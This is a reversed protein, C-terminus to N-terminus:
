RMAFVLWPPVIRQQSPPIPSHVDLKTQECGVGLLGRTCNVAGGGGGGIVQAYTYGTSSNYLETVEAESLERKWLGLQDIQSGNSMYGPSVDNKRGIFTGESSDGVAGSTASTEPTGGNISIWAENATADHAGALFYWTATSPAGFATADRTAVTTSTGNGLFFSLRSTSSRYFLMYEQRTGDDWKSIIAQTTSLSAFKAWGAVTFTIDGLNLSANDSISLYNSSGNFTAANGIKGSTFTVTNNNTLTNSGHDDATNSLSWFAELNASMDTRARVLSPSLSLALLTVSTALLSRLLRTSTM